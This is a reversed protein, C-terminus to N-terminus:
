WPSGAAGIWSLVREYLEIGHTPTRCAQSNAFHGVTFGNISGSTGARDRDAPSLGRDLRGRLYRGPVADKVASGGKAFMQSQLKRADDPALGLGCSLGIYGIGDGPVICDPIAARGNLRKQPNANTLDDDVLKVGNRANPHVLLGAVLRDAVHSAHETRNCHNQDRGSREIAQPSSEQTGVM